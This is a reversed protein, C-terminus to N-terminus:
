RLTEDPKNPLHALLQDLAAQDHGPNVGTKEWEIGAAMTVSMLANFFPKMENGRWIHPLAPLDRDKV